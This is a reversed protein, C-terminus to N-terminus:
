CVRRQRRLSTTMYIHECGEFVTGSMPLDVEIENATEGKMPVPNRFITPVANPRSGESVNSFKDDSMWERVLLTCVKQTPGEISALLYVSQCRM